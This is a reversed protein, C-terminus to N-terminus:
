YYFHRLFSVNFANSFHHNFNPPPPLATTAFLQGEQMSEMDGVLINTMVLRDSPDFYPDQLLQQQLYPVEAEQLLTADALSLLQQQNNNFPSSSTRGRSESLRTLTDPNVFSSSAEAKSATVNSEGVRENNNKSVPFKKKARRGWYTYNVVAYELLAAFVFIFCMVLYIDIAKVYSIRPLSSRVGTSITTM